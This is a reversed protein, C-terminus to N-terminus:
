MIKGNKEWLHCSKRLFNHFMFHTKIKEVRKIQFMERELFFQALHTFYEKKRDSRLSVQIKGVSKRFIRL